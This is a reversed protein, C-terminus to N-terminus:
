QKLNAEKEKKMQKTVDVQKSTDFQKEEKIDKKMAAVKGSNDIEKEVRKDIVNGIEDFQKPAIKNEQYDKVIKRIEATNFQAKKLRKEPCGLTVLQKKMEDIVKREQRGESGFWRSFIFKKYYSASLANVYILGSQINEKSLQNSNSEKFQEDIYSALNKGEPVKTKLFDRLNLDKRKALVDFYPANLTSKKELIEDIMVNVTEHIIEDFKDYKQDKVKEDLDLLQNVLKETDVNPDDYDLNNHVSHNIEGTIPDRLDEKVFCNLLNNQDKNMIINKFMQINNDTIKVSFNEKIDFNKRMANFFREFLDSTIYANATEYKMNNIFNDKNKDVTCLYEIDRVKTALATAETVADINFIYKSLFEFTSLLSKGNIHENIYNTPCNKKKNEIYNESINDVFDDITKGSQKITTLVYYLGNLKSVDRYNKIFKIPYKPNRSVSVNSNLHDYGINHVENLLHDYKDNLNKFKDVQTNFLEQLKNKEEESLNPNNLQEITDRISNQYDLYLGFGYQKVGEEKAISDKTYYPKGDIKTFTDLEKLWKKLNEKSEESLMLPKDNIKNELNNLNINHDYKYDRGTSGWINGNEFKFSKKYVEDEKFQEHVLLKGKYNDPKPMEEVLNSYPLVIDNRQNYFANEKLYDLNKLTIPDTINNKANEIFTLDEHTDETKYATAKDVIEKLKDVDEQKLKDGIIEAIKDPNRKLYKKFTSIKANIIEKNYEEILKHHYEKTPNKVVEKIFNVKQQMASVGIDKNLVFDDQLLDSFLMIKNDLADNFSEIIKPDKQGDMLENMGNLAIDDGIFKFLNDQFATKKASIDKSLKHNKEYETTTPIEEIKQTNNFDLSVEKLSEIYQILEQLTM